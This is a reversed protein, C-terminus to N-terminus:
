LTTTVMRSPALREGGGVLVINGTREKTRIALSAPFIRLRRSGTIQEGIRTSNMEARHSQYIPRPVGAKHELGGEGDGL